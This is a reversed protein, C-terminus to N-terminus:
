FKSITAKKVIIKLPKYYKVKYIESFKAMEGFLCIRIKTM